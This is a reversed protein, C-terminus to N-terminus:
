NGAAAQGRTAKIAESWTNRLDEMLEIVDQVLAPDKKLQANLLHRTMFEYLSFLNASMEIDPNLTAMLEHIIDQSRRMNTQMETLNEQEMAQKTQKLFRIVGNYLMLTLEGPSATMAQTNHYTQYPNNIM